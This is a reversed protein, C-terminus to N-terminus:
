KLHPPELHADLFKIRVEIDIRARHARKLVALNIDEVIAGFGVEVEPVVLAERGTLKRPM